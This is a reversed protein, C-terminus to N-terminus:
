VVQVIRCLLSPWSADSWMLIGQMWWKRDHKCRALFDKNCYLFYNNLTGLIKPCKLPMSENDGILLSTWMPGMSSVHTAGPFSPSNDGICPSHDANPLMGSPADGVVFFILFFVSHSAGLILTCIILEYNVCFWIYFFLSKGTPWGRTASMITLFRMRTDMLRM